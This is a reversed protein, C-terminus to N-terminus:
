KRWRYSAKFYWARQLNIFDESPVYAPAQWELKEYQSGYGLYLVTGPIWTFSLLLDERLQRRYTNYETVARFFLYKNFQLVTMNRWIIVEYLKEHQENEYFDTYTMSFESTIKSMPQLRINARLEQESGQFPNEPDYFIGQGHRWEVGARLWNLPQSGAELRIANRGFQHGAFIEDALWFSLSVETQRPMAFEVGLVNFTEWQGATHDRSHRSWYYPSVRQLIKNEFFFHRVAFVPFTTLGTRTFYGLRTDFDGSIDFGGFRVNWQRADFHWSAGLAHGSSREGERGNFSGFGHFEFRSQNGTRLRGDAGAVYNHQGDFNWGTFVAGLYSDSTLLRGYRLVSFQAKKGNPVDGLTGPYEDLAYLTSFLNKSGLKGSLKVGVLPDVISRTNVIEQLYTGDPRAGFGFWEQGEQFFPRKEPYFLAARLNVDVQSADTEVQSFDPNFTADLTLGTTLGIKATVGLEPKWDGGHMEGEEQYDKKSITFAPLMEVIRGGRVASLTIKQFQALAAGREPRYEPFDVEESKRSIFRAIKFGMMLTDKRPFRLNRFPIAMEVVYGDPTRKGASQWVLDLLIDPEAAADLTGDAQVGLPNSMFFFSAQEDNDADMCLAVWDDGNDRDRASLTAKVKDPESDFCHIAFYLHDRDYALFAETKESPPLGFDPQITKFDTFVAARQWAPDDLLGDIHPPHITQPLPLAEEGFIKQWALLLAVVLSLLVTRKM